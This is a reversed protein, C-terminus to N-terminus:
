EGSSVNTEEAPAEPERREEELRGENGGEETTETTETLSALAEKNAEM